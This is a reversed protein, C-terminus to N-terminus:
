SAIGNLLRYRERNALRSCELCQRRGDSRLRWTEPTDLRHGRTCRGSADVSAISQSTKGVGRRSNERPTVPELHRPNVCTRNRCLHDLHLGDPVDKGNASVWAVVHAQFIDPGVAFRGYGRPHVFATWEVCGSESAQTKSWFRAMIAPTLSEPSLPRRPLRSM